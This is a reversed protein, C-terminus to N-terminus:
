DLCRIKGFEFAQTPECLILKSKEKHRRIGLEETAKKTRRDFRLSTKTHNQKSDHILCLKYSERAVMCQIVTITIEMKMVM